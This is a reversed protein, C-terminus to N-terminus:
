GHVWVDPGNWEAALAADWVAMAGESDVRDGLEAIAARTQGDWTAVPGGRNCSHAGAPPGGATNVRQLATLFRGLDDALREYDTM